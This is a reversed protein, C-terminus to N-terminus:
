QVIDVDDDRVDGDDEHDGHADRFFLTPYKLVVSTSSSLDSKSNKGRWETVKPAKSAHKYTLKQM